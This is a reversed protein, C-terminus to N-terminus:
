AATGPDEIHTPAQVPDVHTFPDNPPLKSPFFQDTTYVSFTAVEDAAAAEPFVDIAAKIGKTVKLTVTSSTDDHHDVADVEVQIRGCDETWWLLRGEPVLCDRDCELTVVPVVTARKNGPRVEKNTADVDTVRGSIAKGVLVEDILALPDTVKEQAELVGQQYEAMKKAWIAQRPTQRTRTRGGTPGDLWEFERVYAGADAQRRDPLYWDDAPLEWVRDVAQWTMDWVPAILEHWQQGLTAALSLTPEGAREAEGIAAITDTIAYELSPVAYPGISLREAADAADDPDVGDPPDIWATLAGLHAREDISQETVWHFQCLSVVDLILSEGPATSHEALWRLIRGFRVLDQPAPPPDNSDTSPETPLYSLRRGLRGLAAVGAPNPVIVQPLADLDVVWRGDANDFEAAQWAAEFRESFWEVLPRLGDFLQQRDLPQAIVLEDLDDVADGWGIAALTHAEGGPQFPVLIIPSDAIWRQRLSRRLQAQRTAAARATLLVDLHSV